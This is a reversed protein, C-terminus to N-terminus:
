RYLTEEFTLNGSFVVTYVRGADYVDLTSDGIDHTGIYITHAEGSRPDTCTFSILSDNAMHQMESGEVMGRDDATAMGVYIGSLVDYIKGNKLKAVDPHKTLPAGVHIRGKGEFRLLMELNIKECIIKVNGSVRPRSKDAIISVIVILLVLLAVGGAALMWNNRIAGLIGSVPSTPVESPAATPSETPAAEQAGLRHTPLVTPDTDATARVTQGDPQSSDESTDNSAISQGADSSIDVAGDGGDASGELDELDMDKVDEVLEDLDEELAKIAQVAKELQEQSLTTPSIKAMAGMVALAAAGIEDVDPVLQLDLAHIPPPTGGEDSASFATLLITYGIDPDLASLDIDDGSHIGSIAPADANQAQVVAEADDAGNGDWSVNLQDSEPNAKFEWFFDSDGNGDRVIMTDDVVTIDVGTDPTPEPAETPAPLAEFALDNVSLVLYDNQAKVEGFWLGPTEPTLQAVFCDKAPTMSIEEPQSGDAPDLVTLTADTLAYIDSDTLDVYASGDYQQFRMSVESTDGSYLSEPLDVRLRLNHNFRVVTNIPLEAQKLSTINVRWDGPQPAPIGLIIYSRDETVSIGNGPHSGDRDYAVLVTGDPAILEVRELRAKDQPMFTINVTADSIGKYPVTFRWEIPTLLDFNQIVTDTTSEAKILMQLLKSNLDVQTALLVNSYAGDTGPVGGGAAAMRNIFAMFADTNRVTDRATLAIIYVDSGKQRIDRIIAETQDNAEINEPQSFPDSTNTLDNVGDTLLIVSTKGTFEDLMGRATEMATRIDTYNDRHAQKAKENLNSGIADNLAEPESGIDMPGYSVCNEPGCFVIVGIKGRNGASATYIVNEYVLKAADFRLGSPDTAGGLSHRGTTSRSNDIIVIYNHDPKEVGAAYGVGILTLLVILALAIGLIKRM